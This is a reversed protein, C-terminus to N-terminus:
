IEWQRMKNEFFKIGSIDGQYEECKKMRNNLIVAQGKHINNMSKEIEFCDFIYQLYEGKEFKKYDFVIPKKDMLDAQEFMFEYIKQVVLKYTEITVELGTTGEMCSWQGIIKRPNKLMILFDLNKYKKSLAYMACIRGWEDHFFPKDISIYDNFGNMEYKMIWDSIWKPIENCDYPIRRSVIRRDHILDPGTNRTRIGFADLLIALVGTGSYPCGVANIIM